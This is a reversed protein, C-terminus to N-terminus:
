AFAPSAHMSPASTRDARKHLLTCEDRWPHELILQDAYARVEDDLAGHLAAALARAMEGASNFRANKDKALAIALVRGVDPHADVRECPDIPQGDLVCLLTSVASDAEFAPTNTLLRYAIVGLSFIDARHDVGSSRLQEPSMYGPTGVFGQGTLTGHSGPAKSVGFDLLKWVAGGAEDAALFVNAPKIDRHVIGEAHAADLGRAVQEVLRLTEEFSFERNPLLQGLDKGQLLEMTFFPTGDDAIGTEHIRVVHRSRVRRVHEAERFFRKVMSPDNAVSPSLVKLAVVPGKDNSWARYVYGMGGAGILEGVQYPGVISGTLAGVKAPEVDAPRQVLELQEHTRELRQQLGAMATLAETLAARNRRAHLVSALLVALVVVVLGPTAGTVLAITGYSVACTGFVTWALLKSRNLGFTYTLPFLFVALASDAGMAAVGVTTSACLLVAIVLEDTPHTAQRQLMRGWCIACVVSTVLCLGILLPGFIAHPTLHGVGAGVLSLAVAVPMGVRSRNFDAERALAETAHATHM